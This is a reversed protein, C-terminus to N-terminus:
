LNFLNKWIDKSTQERAQKPMVKSYTGIVIKEGNSGICCCEYQMTKKNFFDGGLLITAMM